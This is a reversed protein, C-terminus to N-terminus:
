GHTCHHVTGVISASLVEIDDSHFPYPTTQVAQRGSGTPVQNQGSHLLPLRLQSLLTLKFDKFQTMLLLLYRDVILGCDCWKM